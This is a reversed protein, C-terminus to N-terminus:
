RPPIAYTRSDEAVCIPGAYTRSAEARAVAPDNWVPLHTLMLHGVDAEAAVQGARVGTLHVGRIADDRGEQFAAECLFLDAARAADVLGPCADSDGSYALVSRRGALEHTVRIAYPEPAPHLVPFAQVTFPGLRVPEGPAWPHFGFSGSLGPELGIGHTRALYPHTDAPGWLPIPQGPWGRPDWRVAIHLGALDICHDPHLHSVFIGDIQPLSLHRQIAGLGGSGLDLLIRWTRGAEDEGGVLYCSAASDPGAFSGSCGIITLEM